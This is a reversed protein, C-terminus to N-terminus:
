DYGDVDADEDDGLPALMCGLLFVCIGFILWGM